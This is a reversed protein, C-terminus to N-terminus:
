RVNVFVVEYYSPFGGEFGSNKFWKSDWATMHSNILAARPRCDKEMRRRSRNADQM